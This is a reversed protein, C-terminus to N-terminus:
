SSIPEIRRFKGWVEHKRCVLDSRKSYDSGLPKDDLLTPDVVHVADVELHHCLEVGETERCSIAKFKKLGQKYFKETEISAMESNDESLFKPLSFMGFSAAYAITPLIPANNLLYVRPDGWDGCHWVQDSGVVLIDVGLKDPADKWEVFHYQTLKLKEKIFKKTRKVRLWGNLDGLGLLSRIWFRVWQRVGFKAYDRELRYNEEDFWRDIVVVEHGMRELATQLAWCQLVGGYNLQSHFTLIGIKM